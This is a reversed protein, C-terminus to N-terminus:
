EPTDKRELGSVLWCTMDHRSLIGARSAHSSSLATNLTKDQTTEEKDAQDMTGLLSHQHRRHLKLKIELSLERQQNVLEAKEEEWSLTYTGLVRHAPPELGTHMPCQTMDPRPEVVHKQMNEQEVQSQTSMESRGQRLVPAYSQAPRMLSMPYM